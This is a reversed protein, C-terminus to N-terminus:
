PRTRERPLAAFRGGADIVVLGHRAMAQVTRSHIIDRPDAAPDRSRWGGCARELGHAAMREALLTTARHRIATMAAHGPDADM